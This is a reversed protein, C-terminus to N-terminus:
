RAWLQPAAYQRIFDDSTVLVLNRAVSQAILLRDFPDKHILPLSAAAEGHEGLIPLSYFGNKTIAQSPSGTFTLRGLQRKIAIEWVSAASVFIRNAPDSIEAAASAGLQSDSCDWWIFVHTDLLLDM